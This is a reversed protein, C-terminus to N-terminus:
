SRSQRLKPEERFPKHAQYSRLRKQMQSLSDPASFPRIALAQTQYKIAQVFDGSEAYAAALTDILDGDKWKSIECGKTAAQVAEAGNRVSANPCTAKFWAFSNLVSDDRPSRRRAQDFRAAARAYEGKQMYARAQIVDGETSNTVNRIANDYDALAQQTHGAGAHANGRDIYAIAMKPEDRLAVDFDAIAESFRRYASYLLGRYYHAAGSKPEIQIAASYDAIAGPFDGARERSSAREIYIRGSKGDPSSIRFDQMTEVAGGVAKGRTAFLLDAAVVLLSFALRTKM